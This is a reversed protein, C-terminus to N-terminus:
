TDQVWFALRGDRDQLDLGRKDGLAEQSDCVLYLICRSEENEIVIDKSLVGNLLLLGECKGHHHRMM